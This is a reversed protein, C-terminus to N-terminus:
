PCSQINTRSRFHAQAAPLPIAAIEIPYVLSAICACTQGGDVEDVDVMVLQGERVAGAIKITSCGNKQSGRSAFLVSERSFDVAPLNPDRLDGPHIDNWVEQWRAPTTIVEMRRVDYNSIWNSYLIRLPLAEGPETSLRECSLSILLLPLLLSALPRKM